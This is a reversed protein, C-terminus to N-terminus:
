QAVSNSILKPARGTPPEQLVIASTEERRFRLQKAIFAEIARQFEENSMEEDGSGCSSERPEGGSRETRRRKEAEPPLPVGRCEEEEDGDEEPVEEEFDFVGADGGRARAATSVESIIEKDEYVVEEAERVPPLAPRARSESIKVIEEYLEEVAGDEAPRHACFRCARALLAVIIANCLVFAFLPRAVFGLLLFSYEYSLRVALPVRTSVRLLFFLALGLELLRFATLVVNFRFYSSFATTRKEPKRDSGATEM